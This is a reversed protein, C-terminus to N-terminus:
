AGQQQQRQRPTLPMVNDLEDFTPPHAQPPAAEGIEPDDRLKPPRGQKAKAIGVGKLELWTKAAAVSGSIAAQYLAEQVHETADIEADLVLKEWEPHEEILDRMRTRSFEIMDAASGRPLGDRIHQLFEEQRAKIIGKLKPIKVYTM